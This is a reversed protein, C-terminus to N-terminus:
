SAMLLEIKQQFDDLRSLYYAQDVVPVMSQFSERFSTEQIHIEFLNRYIKQLIERRLQESIIENPGHVLQIRKLLNGKSAIM